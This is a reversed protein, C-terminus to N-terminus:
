ATAGHELLLNTIERTGNNISYALPTANSYDKQNISAGNSILIKVMEINNKIVAWFLPSWGQPDSLNPDAGYSLYLMVMEPSNFLVGYMLGSLGKEDQLNANIENILSSIADIDCTKFAQILSNHKHNFFDMLIAQQKKREEFLPQLFDIMEQNNCQKALDLTSEWDSGGTNFANAGYQILMKAIENHAKIIARRLIPGDSCIANPNGGAELLEKAEQINNNAVKRMLWKSIKDKFQTVAEENLSPDKISNIVHKIKAITTKDYLDFCFIVDRYDLRGFLYILKRTREISDTEPSGIAKNLQEIFWRQCAKSKYLMKKVLLYKNNNLAQLFTDKEFGQPSSLAKEERRILYTVINTIEKNVFFLNGREPSDILFSLIYEKIEIPLRDWHCIESSEPEETNM